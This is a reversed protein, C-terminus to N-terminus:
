LGATIAQIAKEALANVIAAYNPHAKVQAIVDDVVAAAAGEIAREINSLESM